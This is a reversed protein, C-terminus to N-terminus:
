KNLLVRYHSPQNAVGRGSEDPWGGIIYGEEDHPVGRPQYTETPSPNYLEERWGAAWLEQWNECDEAQKGFHEVWVAEEDSAAQQRQSLQDAYSLSHPM